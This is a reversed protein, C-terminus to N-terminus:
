LMTSSGRAYGQLASMAGNHGAFLSLPTHSALPSPILLPNDVTWNCPPFFMM